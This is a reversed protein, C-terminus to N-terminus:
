NKVESPEPDKQNDSQTLIGCGVVLLVGGIMQPATMIERGLLTSYIASLLAVGCTLLASKSPGVIKISRIFLINATAIEGLGSLFFIPIVWWAWDSNIALPANTSLAHIFFLVTSITCIAAFTTAPALTKIFRNGACFAGFCLGCGLIMLPGKSLLSANLSIGERFYLVSFVGVIVFLIGVIFRWSRVQAREDAFLLLALIVSWPTATQYLLAGLAPTIEAGECNYGAVMLSQGTFFLLALPIIKHLNSKIIDWSPKEYRWVWINMFITAISFRYVNLLTADVNESALSHLYLPVLSWIFVCVGLPAYMSLKKNM